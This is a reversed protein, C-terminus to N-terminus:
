RDIGENWDNGRNMDKMLGDIRDSLAEIEEASEELFKTADEYANLLDKNDRALKIVVVWSVLLMLILTIIALRQKNM